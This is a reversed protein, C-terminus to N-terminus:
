IQREREAAISRLEDVLSRARSGSGHLVGLMAQATDLLECFYDYMGEYRQEGEYGHYVLAPRTQCIEPMQEALEVIRKNNVSSYLYCLLQVADYRERLVESHAYVRECYAIIKERWGCQRYEAYMTGASYLYALALMLKCSRPYREQVEERAHVRAMYEDHTMLEQTGADALLADVRENETRGGDTLLADCSVDFCEAIMPILSVDPCAATTEWKSVAQPSVNLLEALRGQTMGAKERFYRIKQGIQMTM